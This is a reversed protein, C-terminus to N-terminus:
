VEPPACDVVLVAIVDEADFVLLPPLLLPDVAVVVVVEDDDAADADADADADAVVEFLSTPRGLASTLMIPSVAANRLPSTKVRTYFWGLLYNLGREGSRSFHPESYIYIYSMGRDDMLSTKVGEKGGM